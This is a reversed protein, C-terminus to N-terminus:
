RLSDAAYRFRPACGCSTAAAEGGVLLLNGIIPYENSRRFLQGRSFEPKLKVVATLILTRDAINLTM